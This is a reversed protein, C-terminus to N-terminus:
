LFICDCPMVKTLSGLVSSYPVTATKASKYPLRQSKISNLLFYFPQVDSKHEVNYCSWDAVEFVNCEPSQAQETFHIQNGTFIRAVSALQKRMILYRRGGDAIVFMILAFAGSFKDGAQHTAHFHRQNRIGSRRQNRVGTKM